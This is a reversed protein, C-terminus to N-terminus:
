IKGDSNAPMEIIYRNLNQLRRDLNDTVLAM